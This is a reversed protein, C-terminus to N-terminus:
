LMLPSVFLALSPWAPFVYEASLHSEPDLNIRLRALHNELEISSSQGYILRDRLMNAASFWATSSLLDNSRPKHQPQQNSGQQPQPQQQQPQQAQTQISEIKSHLWRRLRFKGSDDNLIRTVLDIPPYCFPSSAVGALASGASPSPEWSMSSFDVAAYPALHSNFEMYNDESLTIVHAAQTIDLQFLKSFPQYPGRHQQHQHSGPPKPKKLLTRVQSELAQQL